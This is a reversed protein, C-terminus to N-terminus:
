LSCTPSRLLEICRRNVRIAPAAALSAICVIRAPPRGHGPGLFPRPVVCGAAGGCNAGLGRPMCQGMFKPTVDLAAFRATTSNRKHDAADDRRPKPLGPRTRDLAKSKEYIGAGEPPALHLGVIGQVTEVLRKDNSLKLTKTLHSKLGHAAWIGQV